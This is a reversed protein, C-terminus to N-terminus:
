ASLCRCRPASGRTRDLRELEVDATLFSALRDLTPAATKENGASGFGAFWAVIGTGCLVAAVTASRRPNM